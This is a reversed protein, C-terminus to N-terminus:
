RRAGQYFVREDTKTAYDRGYKDKHAPLPETSVVLQTEPVVVPSTGVSV